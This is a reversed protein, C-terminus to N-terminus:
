KVEVDHTFHHAGTGSYVSVSIRWLGPMHFLFGTAEFAGPRQSVIEPTYNMGHKHAPMSADATIRDAEQNGAPCVKIALSFPVSVSAADPPMTLGVVFPAAAEARMKIATVPLQCAQAGAAGLCAVCFQLAASKIRNM